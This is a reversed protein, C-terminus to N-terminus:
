KKDESIQIECSNRKANEEIKETIEQMKKKGIKFDEAILKLKFKGASIYTISIEEGTLNLTDRIKNIGDDELCKLKIIQNLEVAKRKKQLIKKLQEQGSKQIYKELITNDERAAEVFKQLSTFDQVIDVRIKEADQKLIQKFSAEMTQEQKFEQLSEKRERATVRRLSLHPHDGSIKLVKCIVKKKPVVHARMNKIRGPAIESSIITGESGDPLKVFVVTPTIREVTCLILDGENM